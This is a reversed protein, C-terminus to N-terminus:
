GATPPPLRVARKPESALWEPDVHVGTLLTMLAVSRPLRFSDHSHDGFRCLWAEDPCGPWPDHFPSPWGLKTGDRWIDVSTEGYDVVSALLGGSTTMAQGFTDERAKIGHAEYIVLGGGPATGVWLWAEEPTTEIRGMPSRAAEFPAWAQATYEEWGLPPCDSPDAGMRRIAEDEDLGAVFAICIANTLGVITRAWDEKVILHLRPESFWYCDDILADAEDQLRLEDDTLVPAGPRDAFLDALPGDLAM